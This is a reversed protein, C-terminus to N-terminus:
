QSGEMLVIHALNLGAGGAPGGIYYHALQLLLRRASGDATAPGAATGFAIPERLVTGIQSKWDILDFKVVGGETRWKVDTETSGPRKTFRFEVKLVDTAITAGLPLGVEVRAIMEDPIVLSGTYLVTNPGVTTKNMFEGSPTVNRDVRSRM